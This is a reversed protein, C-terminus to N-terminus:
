DFEWIVPMEDNYRSQGRSQMRDSINKDSSGINSSKKVKTVVRSENRNLRKEYNATGSAEKKAHFSHKHKELVKATKAATERAEDSGPQSRPRSQQPPDLVANNNYRYQHIDSRTKKKSIEAPRSSQKYKTDSRSRSESQVPRPESLSRGDSSRDRKPDIKNKMRSAVAASRSHKLNTPQNKRNNDEIDTSLMRGVELYWPDKSKITSKDHEKERDKNWNGLLPKRKNRKKQIKDLGGEENEDFGVIDRLSNTHKYAYFSLVVLGVNFLFFVDAKFREAHSPATDIYQKSYQDYRRYQGSGTQGEWVNGYSKDGYKVQTITGQADALAICEHTCHYTDHSYFKWCQNILDDEDTGYNGNFYGDQYSPYDICLTCYKFEEFVQNFLTMTYEKTKLQTNSKSYYYDADDDVINKYTYGYGYFEDYTRDDGDYLTLCQWDKYLAMEFSGNELPKPASYVDNGSYDYGALNCAGDRLYTLGAYAVTYEYDSIYWLHKTVQEFFEYFEQRYVGLLQWETDLSHCDLKGVPETYQSNDNAEDNQDYVNSSYCHYSGDDSRQCGGGYYNGGNSSGGDSNYGFYENRGYGQYNPDVYAAWMVWRNCGQYNWGGYYGNGGNDCSIFAGLMRYAQAWENYYAGSNAFFESGYASVDSNRSNSRLWRHQEKELNPDETIAQDRVANIQDENMLEVKDNDMYNQPNKIMEKMTERAKERRELIRRERDIKEAEIEEETHPIRKRPPIPEKHNNLSGDGDQQKQQQQLQEADVYPRQEIDFLSKQPSKHSSATPSAAVLLHFGLRTSASCIISLLIVISVDIRYRYKMTHNM